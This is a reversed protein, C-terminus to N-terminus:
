RESLMQVLEEVYIVDEADASFHQSAAHNRARVEPSRVSIRDPSQVVGFDWKSQRHWM